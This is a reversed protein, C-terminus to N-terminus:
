ATLYKAYNQNTMNVTNNSHFFMTKILCVKEFVHIRPADGFYQSKKQLKKYLRDKILINQM